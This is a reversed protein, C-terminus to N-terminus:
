DTKDDYESPTVYSPYESKYFYNYSPKNIVRENPLPTDKPKTSSSLNIEIWELEKTIPNLAQLYHKNGVKKRYKETM